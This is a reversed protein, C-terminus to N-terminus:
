FTDVIIYSKEDIKEIELNSFNGKESRWENSFGWDNWRWIAVFNGECKPKQSYDGEIVVLENRGDDDIDVIKFECNPEALNSSGWIQRILGGVFGLIFFHNKVSMDNEKVWFPKSTGFSGSKWLSLNIDLVGDNNSDALVFDDIWWDSPSQWIMKGNETIALKGSELNYNEPISDNDLDKLEQKSIIRSNESTTGYIVARTEKEFNNKSNNWFYVGQSAVSFKLRQLIRDAENGNAIRPQALNEMVVPLFPIKNIRDKSFYIKIALGEKTEQKQPQDFVFNGLSYFIYKGKYKELTQVVHPHHGIVLDAGADIAAHAFNIQSDNPKDSYETGAHMSVIVFNAEQKAEKVAKTMKDQQMFATGVRNTSAEYYTPVVDTDSYALFAFKVGKKEIYVPQYAERENQGAGVYKIGADELFNFTDKLGKEGFNPTHNNALSLISFEAQKLAQETGPNSRFIVEFDSIEPGQTIPTELNGFVLDANKLYDQIKLFPYNINNQKRVIREVGRSYSIDGVVILSVEEGKQPLNRKQSLFELFEKEGQPQSNETEQNKPSHLYYSGAWLAIALTFVSIIISWTTERQM